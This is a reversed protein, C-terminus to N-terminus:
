HAIPMTSTSSLSITAGGFFWSIMPEYESIVTVRVTDGVHNRNDLWEVTVSTRDQPCTTLMSKVADVQPSTQDVTTPGVTTPGWPGGNWGSPANEGHVMAQRVGQRSAQSLTNYRFVALGVDVTGLVLLLFVPIIIAAELAAAGSRVTKKQHLRM